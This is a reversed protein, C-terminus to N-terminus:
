THMELTQQGGKKNLPDHFRAMAAPDKVMRNMHAVNGQMFKHNCFDIVDMDTVYELMDSRAFFDTTTDGWQINTQCREGVDAWIARKCANIAGLDIDNGFLNRAAIQKKPIGSVDHFQRLAEIVFVGSGCSPEWIRWEEYPKTYEPDDVLSDIGQKVLFHALMIPTYYSATEKQGVEGRHKKLQEYYGAMICMPKDVALLDSGQIYKGRKDKRM